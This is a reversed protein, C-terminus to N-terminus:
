EPEVLKFTCGVKRSAGSGNSDRVEIAMRYEGPLLLSTDVTFNEPVTEGAMQPQREFTLTLSSSRESGGSSFLQKIKGFVGSAEDKRAITVSEVYEVAGDIARRLGYIELYVTMIEGATYTLSPRPLLEVGMRSHSGGSSPLPIGLVVGSLELRDRSFPHLEFAKRQVSRHGPIDMRASYIMRGPELRVRNMGFWNVKGNDLVRAAVSSDVVMEMWSNDFVVLEVGPAKETDHLEVPISQYVELENEGGPALFDVMYFDQELEPLPDGFSETEMAKNIDAGGRLTLPVFFYEGIPVPGLGVPGPTPGMKGPSFVFYKEGYRWIEEERPIPVREIEDPQGHRIYLLGRQELMLEPNRGFFLDPDYDYPPTELGYIENTTAQSIMRYRDRSKWIKSYPNKITYTKEAEKLRRYHEYLRENVPTLPDPDRRSWFVRFFGTWQDATKLTDAKSQEEPRFIASAHSILKDFDGTRGAAALASDYAAQFEDFHRLEVMCRARLLFRDVPRHEPLVKRLRDLTALCEEVEDLMFRYGAIDLLLSDADERNIIYNELCGIVTRVVDDKKILITNSWVQYVSQYAPDICIVEVMFESAADYGEPTGMAAAARSAKLYIDPNGPDLMTAIRYQKIAEWNRKPRSAEIDGLGIFALSRIRKSKSSMADRFTLKASKKDGSALYLRGRALLADWHKKDQELVSDLMATAQSTDGSALLSSAQNYLSDASQNAQSDAATGLVSFLLWIPLFILLPAFSKNHM